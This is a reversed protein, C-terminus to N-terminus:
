CNSSFGESCTRMTKILNAAKLVEESAGASARHLAIPKRTAVAITSGQVSVKAIPLAGQKENQRRIIHKWCWSSCNDQGYRSGFLQGAVIAAEMIPLQTFPEM